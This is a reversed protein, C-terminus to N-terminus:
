RIEIKTYYAEDIQELRYYRESYEKYNESIDTIEIGLEVTEEFKKYFDKYAQLIRNFKNVYEKAVKEDLTVFINAQFTDGWYGGGYKVLYAEKKINSKSM